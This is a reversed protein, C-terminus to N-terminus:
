FGLDLVSRAIISRQIESTGAGITGLMSDRLGREVHYEPTYGNGGHLQIGTRANQQSVESVFLKAIAADVLPPDDGTDLHWAVRYILNRSLQYRMKMDALQQRVAQFKAIPRGFQEREQCYRATQEIGRKMSGLAPALLCSREWGLILKATVLFGFDQQGLLNEEPVECDEFILESTTSTRMGMKEIKQGVRFGPHDKEVIFTSIGMAKQGPSTVATVVFVDGVPGNTIWMKTGNLIWKDGRKEAKTKMSAADSGSGPESLCFGGISEGSCLKPLYEQKQEESGLKWIPVACLITHAGWALAVGADNAGEAFGEKVLCTGVASLGLGGYEAPIPAGLYGQEGMKQFIEPSWAAAADREVVTPEIEKAGFKKAGERLELQEDTFGFEM